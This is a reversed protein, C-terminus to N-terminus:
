FPIEDDLERESMGGTQREPPPTKDEKPKAEFLMAVVRGESDALPLSDFYLTTGKDGTFATGIRHWFTGGDKKKRPICVDYRISM